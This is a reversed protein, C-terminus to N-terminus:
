LAYCIVVNRLDINIDLVITQMIRYHDYSIDLNLQVTEPKATVVSPEKRLAGTICKMALVTQGGCTGDEATKLNLM